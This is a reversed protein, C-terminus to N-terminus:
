SLGIEPIANGTASSSPNPWLWIGRGNIGGILDALQRHKLSDDLSHKFQLKFQIQLKSRRKQAPNIIRKGRSTWQTSIKALASCSYMVCCAWTLCQVLNNCCNLMRYHLITICAFFVDKHCQSFWLYELWTLSPPGQGALLIRFPVLTSLTASSPGSRQWTSESQPGYLSYSPCHVLDM